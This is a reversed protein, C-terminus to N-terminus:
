ATSPMISTGILNESLNEAPNQPTLTLCNDGAFIDLRARMANVAIAPGHTKIRMKVLLIAFPHPIGGIWFDVNIHPFISFIAISQRM